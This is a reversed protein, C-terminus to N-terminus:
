PHHGAAYDASPRARSDHAFRLGPVRAESPFFDLLWERYLARAQGPYSNIWDKVASASACGRLAIAEDLLPALPERGNWKPWAAYLQATAGERWVPLPECRAFLMPVDLLAAKHCLSSHDCLLLDAVALMRETYLDAELLRLGSGAPQRRRWHYHENPHACLAIQFRATLPELQEHLSQWHRAFLSQPGVSSAVVLVPRDDGLGLTRRVAARDDAVALMEDDLLRGLVRIRGRLDPDLAQLAASVRESSEVMERYRLEGTRRRPAQGYEWPLDPRRGGLKSPNGHGIHVVPSGGPLLSHFHGHDAVVVLRWRRLHAQLSGIERGHPELLARIRRRVEDCRIRPSLAYRVPISCEGALRALPVLHRATVLTQVPLLVAYEERGSLRAHLSLLQRLEKIM